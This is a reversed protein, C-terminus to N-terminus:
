AFNYPNGIQNWGPHHCSLLRITGHAWPRPSRNAPSPCASEPRFLFWAADGPEVPDTFPYEDYAQDEEDWTGIRM